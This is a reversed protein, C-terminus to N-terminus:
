GIVEVPPAFGTGGLRYDDWRFSGDHKVRIAQPGIRATTTSGDSCGLEIDRFTITLKRGESDVKATVRSQPQYKIHGSLLPAAAATAVALALTATGALILRQMVSRVM